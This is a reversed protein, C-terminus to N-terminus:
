TAFIDFIAIVRKPTCTQSGFHLPPCTLHNLPRTNFNLELSIDAFVSIVISTLSLIKKDFTDKEKEEVVKNRGM